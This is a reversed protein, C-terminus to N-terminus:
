PAGPGPGQGLRHRLAAAISAEDEASLDVAGLSDLDLPALGGPAGPPVPVIEWRLHGEGTSVQLLRTAPVVAALATCVASVTHHISTYSPLDIVSTVHALPAVVVHGPVAAPRALYAVVSRDRFAVQQESRGRVLECVPCPEAAPPAYPVRPGPWWTV